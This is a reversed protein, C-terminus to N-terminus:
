AFIRFVMSFGDWFGGPICGFDVFFRFLDWFLTGFFWSPTLHTWFPGFIRFFQSRHGLM